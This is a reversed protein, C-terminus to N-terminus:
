ERPAALNQGCVQMEATTKATLFCDRASAPWSDQTCAEAIRRVTQTRAQELAAKQAPDQAEDTMTKAIKVGVDTCAATVELADPPAVPMGADVPSPPPVAASGPTEDPPPPPLDAVAPPPPQKKPPPQLDCSTAAFLTPFLLLSLTRV